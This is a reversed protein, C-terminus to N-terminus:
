EMNNYIEYLDNKYILNKNYDNKNNILIYEKWDDNNYEKLIFILKNVIMDSKYYKNINQIMDNLTIM